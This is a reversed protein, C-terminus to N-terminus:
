KSTYYQPIMSNFTGIVTEMLNNVIVYLVYNIVAVGYSYYTMIM